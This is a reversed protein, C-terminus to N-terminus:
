KEELFQLRENFFTKYGLHLALYVTLTTAGTIGLMIAIQYKVAIFPSIGSLIQGTMMGPLYIIGMGMMSNITPMIAADFAEKVISDTAMKPTAGMMLAGLIQDKQQSFGHILRHIGISIGTMSNGILMGAIPITYRPDFWPEPRLVIFVFYLFVLLTGMAISLAIVRKLKPQIDSKVRGFITYIAFIEMLLIVLITFLATKTHFIKTLIYGMLILQLTMRFSALLIEKERPIGRFRVLILLILVFLYAAIMQWLALDFVM